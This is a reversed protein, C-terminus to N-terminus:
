LRIFGRPWHDEDIDYRDIRFSDADDVFGPLVRAREIAAEALEKSSYIGIIKVKGTEPPDHFVAFLPEM